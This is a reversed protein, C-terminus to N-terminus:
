GREAPQTVSPVVSRKAGSAPPPAPLLASSRRREGHKLAVTPVHRAKIEAAIPLVQGGAGVVASDADPAGFVEQLPLVLTQPGVHLQIM